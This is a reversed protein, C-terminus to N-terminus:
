LAQFRKLLAQIAERILAVPTDKVVVPQGLNKLLILRLSSGEAKKDYRLKAWIANDTIIEPIAPLKLKELSSQLEKACSEALLGSRASIEIAAWMGLIVAEGHRYYGYDSLSELAHGVTHGFNLIERVGSEDREDAAVAQLKFDVCRGIAAVLCDTDLAQLDQLHAMLWDFFAADYILGYKLMEGLGSVVDRAPLSSLLASDCLVWRPQHFAGILNKGAPHNVGTKGGLGSDVQALLTSPLSVWRIGRMYSAALFGAADGIVGGGLALLWSRRHTKAELLQGYLPMLKELDKFAESVQVQILDARWGQALFAAQLAEAQASLFADAVLVVHPDASDKPLWEPLHALIGAGIRIESSNHPGLSLQLSQIATSIQEASNM